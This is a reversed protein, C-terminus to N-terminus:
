NLTPKIPGGRGYDAMIEELEQQAARRNAVLFRTLPEIELSGVFRIAQVVANLDYEWILPKIWDPATEVLHMAKLRAEDITPEVAESM